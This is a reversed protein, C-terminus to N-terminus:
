MQVGGGGGGGLASAIQVQAALAASPQDLM